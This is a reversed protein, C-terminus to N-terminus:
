ISGLLLGKLVWFEELKGNLKWIGVIILKLVLSGVLGLIVLIHNEGFKKM